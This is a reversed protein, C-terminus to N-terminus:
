RDYRTVGLSRRLRARYKTRLITGTAQLRLRSLSAGSHRPRPQLRRDAGAALYLLSARPRRRTREDHGRCWPRRRLADRFCADRSAGPRERPAHQVRGGRRKRLGRCHVGDPRARHPAAAGVQRDYRRLRGFPFALRGARITRAGGGIGTQTAILWFGCFLTFARDMWTQRRPSRLAGATRFRGPRQTLILNLRQPAPPNTPIIADRSCGCELFAVGLLAPSIGPGKDNTGSANM